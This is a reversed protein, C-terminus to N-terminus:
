AKEQKSRRSLYLLVLMEKCLEEFRTHIGTDVSLANAPLTGTITFHKYDAYPKLWYLEQCRYGCALNDTPFKLKTM